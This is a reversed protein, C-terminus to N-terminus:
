KALVSFKYDFMRDTTPEPLTDARVNILIDAQNKVPLTHPVFQTAQRSNFSDIIPQANSEGRQKVDRYVRNALRVEDPVDLYVLRDISGEELPQFDGEIILYDVKGVKLPYASDDPINDPDQSIAIGTVGDYQPVGISQGEDLECIAKVQKRLFDFDYKEIPNRGANEISARRYPRDGKLYNDTSLVAASGLARSLMEALTGKGSAPGGVLSIIKTGSKQLNRFQEVLASVLVREDLNTAITKFEKGNGMEKTQEEM